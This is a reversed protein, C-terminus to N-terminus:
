TLKRNCAKLYKPTYDCWGLDHAKKLYVITTQVTRGIRKGIEATSKIGDNWLESAIRVLNKCALEECRDWNIDNENFPFINLIASKLISQKIWKSSSQRADIVIYNHELIGNSVALSKKYIDNQMEEEATRGGPYQDFSGDFHQGGHVEIIIHKCNDTIYFDYIRRSMGDSFLQKSWDFVHEPFIDFDYMKSLQLLFEYVYKNPYSSKDGCKQCNFPYSILDCIRKIMVHGCDPCVVFVKKESWRTVNNADEPNLFYKIYEPHTTILDNYGIVVSRKACVKCLSGKVISMPSFDSDPHNHQTCKLWVRVGKANKAILFPDITNKESWMNNLADDGYTDLLFQGISDCKRCYVSSDGNVLLKPIRQESEHLGRACKFWYKKSSKYSVDEPSVENLEYDWLDLWDLHGSDRCWEDFSYKVKREKM